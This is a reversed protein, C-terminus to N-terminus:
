RKIKKWKRMEEYIKIYEKAMKNSSYEEIAQNSIENKSYQAKMDLVSLVASAYANIDGYKVFKSYKMLAISEPGGSYFSVVPTGCCLSEAIPMSFTERFSTVLTVNAFSYLEALDNQDFVQGVYKINDPLKISNVNSFGAIIISLGEKKLIKALEIIYHGGKDDELETSFKATVHLLYKKENSLGYKKMFFNTDRPYFIKENVGNKITINPLTGLISSQKSRSNVWESVSVVQICEFNSFANYMKKWALRSNDVFKSLTSNKFNACKICGEIWQNCENAHTCSGTYFFEAHNTLVTPIKRKKLFDLLKYINVMNCNISHLHVVDPKVKAIYRLIRVTSIPAFGYRLAGLQCLRRYIGQEFKFSSEYVKFDSKMLIRPVCLVTEWDNKKCEIAIENIIKGTSGYDACNIHM